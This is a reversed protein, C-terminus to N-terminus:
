SPTVYKLGLSGVLVYVDVRSVMLDEDDEVDDVDEDVDQMCLAAMREIHEM